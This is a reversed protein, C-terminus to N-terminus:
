ELSDQLIANELDENQEKIVSMDLASIDKANQVIKRIKKKTGEIGRLKKRIQSPGVNVKTSLMNHPVRKGKKGNKIM